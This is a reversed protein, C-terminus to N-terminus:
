SRSCQPARSRGEPGGNEAISSALMSRLLGHSFEVVTASFRLIKASISTRVPWFRVIEAVLHTPPPGDVRERETSCESIRRPSWRVSTFIKRPLKGPRHAAHM